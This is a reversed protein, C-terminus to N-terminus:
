ASRRHQNGQLGQVARLLQQSVTRRHPPNASFDFSMGLYVTRDSRVHSHALRAASVIPTKLSPPLEFRLWWMAHRGVFGAHDDTVTLGVGGGGLNLLKASCSPGVAPLPPDEHLEDMSRGDLERLFAAAALREVPASTAPDLLPWLSVEPLNIEATEIRYDTRRQCRQVRHPMALRLTQMGRQSEHMGNSVTHFMWRNQGVAMVGVLSTGAEIVVRNGLAVPAEVMLTDTGVELLRARLLLDPGAEPLSSRDLALEISGRRQCIQELCRRWGATRSRTAPM